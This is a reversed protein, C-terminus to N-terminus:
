KVEVTISVYAAQVYDAGWGVKEYDAGILTIYYYGDDASCSGTLTRWDGTDDSLVNKAILGQEEFPITYDLPEKHLLVVTSNPFFSNNTSRLGEVGEVEIEEVPISPNENGFQFATIAYNSKYTVAGSREGFVTEPSTGWVDVNAGVILCNERHPFADKVDYTNNHPGVFIRTMEIGDANKSTQIENELDGFSGVSEVAAATWEAYGKGDEFIYTGAQPAVEEPIDETIVEPTTEESSKDESSNSSDSPTNDGDKKDSECAFIFPLCLTLILLLSIVRSIQKTKRM